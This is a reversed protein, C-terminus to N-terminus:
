EGIAKWKMIWENADLKKTFDTDHWCNIYKVKGDNVDAVRILSLELLMKNLMIECDSEIITRTFSIIHHKESTRHFFDFMIDEVISFLISDTYASIPCLCEESMYQAIAQKIEKFTDFRKTILTINVSRDSMLNENIEKM